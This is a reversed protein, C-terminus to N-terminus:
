FVKSSIYRIAELRFNYSCNVEQFAVRHVLKDQPQRMRENQDPYGELPKGVRQKTGLPKQLMNLGYTGQESNEGKSTHSNPINNVM